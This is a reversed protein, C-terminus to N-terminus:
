YEPGTLGRDLWTLLDSGIKFVNFYFIAKIDINDFLFFYDSKRQLKTKIHQRHVFSYAHTPVLPVGFYFPFFIYLLLKKFLCGCM